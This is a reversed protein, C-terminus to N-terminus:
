AAPGNIKSLIDDLDERSWGFEEFDSASYGGAGPSLCHEVIESLARVYGRALAEVTDRRHLAAGYRWVTELRGDAVWCGVEISHRRLARESRVPGSSERAPAFPGLGPMLQDLQGLYNFSVEPQPMRGLAAALEEDDSLYRLVGYDIGRQPVRRLQEKVNKM